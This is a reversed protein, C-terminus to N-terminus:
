GVVVDEQAFAERAQEFPGAELDDTLRAVGVLEEPEHARALGLEHDDVDPHRGRV